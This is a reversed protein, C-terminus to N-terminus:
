KYKSAEALIGRVEDIERELAATALDLDNNEALFYFLGKREQIERHKERLEALRNLLAAVNLSNGPLKGQAAMKGLTQIGKERRIFAQVGCPDCIFYPKNRKSRKIELSNGCLFCPITENNREKETRENEKM